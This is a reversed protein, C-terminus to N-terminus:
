LGKSGVAHDDMGIENVFGDILWAANLKCINVISTKAAGM